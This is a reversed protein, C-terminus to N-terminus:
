YKFRHSINVPLFASRTDHLEQGQVQGGGAGAPRHALALAQPRLGVAVDLGLRLEEPGASDLLRHGLDHVDGAHFAHLLDHGLVDIGALAAGAAKLRGQGQGLQPSRQLQVEPAPPAQGQLQGVEAGDLRLQGYGSLQLHLARGLFLM